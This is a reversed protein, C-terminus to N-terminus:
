STSQGHGYMRKAIEFCGYVVAQDAHVAGMLEPLKLLPLEYSRLSEQLFSGYREFYTGVSGGIVIVEPQMIAILEILGQSIDQCVQKWTQDDTIDMARKGYREVIAHGSAFSEWPTMVGDHEFMMQRGGSDGINEDITQDVVLAYGIGTSVTVYLVKQYTDKLLVAEYLGGLKADNDVYLPCDIIKEIDRHIPVDKWPLNNFGIGIGHERDFVTVPMALAGGVFKKTTFKALSNALETLFEDYSPPTPFKDSETITGDDDFVASLTKTGGIDIGVYM